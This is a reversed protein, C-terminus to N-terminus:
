IKPQKKKHFPCTRCEPREELSMDETYNVCEPFRGICGPFSGSTVRKTREIIQKKNYEKMRDTGNMKM